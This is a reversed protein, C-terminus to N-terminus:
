PLNYPDINLFTLQKSTITKHFTISGQSTQFFIKRLDKTFGLNEVLKQLRKDFKTDAKEELEKQTLKKGAHQFLVEFAKDNQSDFNPNGIVINGGTAYNVLIISNNVYEIELVVDENSKNQQMVYKLRAYDFQIRNDEVSLLSSLSASAGFSIVADAHLTLLIPMMGGKWAAYQLLEPHYSRCLFLDHRRSEVEYFGLRWLNGATLEEPTCRTDLTAALWGAFATLSCQKRHLEMPDITIRGIDDRKDCLIFFSTVTGNMGMRGQVPMLCSQECGTCIIADPSGVMELLGAKELVDVSNSPFVSFADYSLILTGNHTAELQELLHQLLHNATLPQQIM